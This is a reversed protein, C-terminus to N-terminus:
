KHSMEQRQSSQETTLSWDSTLHQAQLLESFTVSHNTIQSYYPAQLDSFTVSHNTDFTIVKGYYEYAARCRADAWFVNRLRSEDDLDMVYHFQNNQKQMRVFYKQIAEADGTGLRLRRAKEIFHRCDKEGFPLNEYGNAEVVLSRFNRSVNIGAQDNLELRRKIHPGLNKNCRFYCAKTPSLDHNHEIIVSSVTITGNLCLCANLRARCQTKTSPNPKLINKSNSVHKRARSCGLTFYKKGEDGKKSTIITVGFGKRRAYNKYYRTVEDESNFKMGVTPEENECAVNDELSDDDNNEGEDTDNEESSALREDMAPQLPPAITVATFPDSADVLNSCPLHPPSSMSILQTTPRRTSSSMFVAAVESADVLDSCPLHLPSSM